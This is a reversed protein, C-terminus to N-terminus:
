ACKREHRPAATAGDAQGGVASLRVRVQPLVREYATKLHEEELRSLVFERRVTLKVRKRAGIGKM